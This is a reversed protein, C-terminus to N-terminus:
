YENVDGWILIQAEQIGAKKGVGFWDLFDQSSLGDNAALLKLNPNVHNLTCIYVHIGDNYFIAGNDYDVWIDVVRLRVDPAIAIQPSRYPKGSWVRLSAMDGDKWRRGFRITHHKPCHDGVHLDHVAKVYAIATDLDRGISDWVKEVFYTPQGAKPHGKLFQRSLTIVRAM